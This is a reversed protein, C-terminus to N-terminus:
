SYRLVDMLVVIKLPFIKMGLVINEQLLRLGLPSSFFYTLLVLTFAQHVAELSQVHVLSMSM